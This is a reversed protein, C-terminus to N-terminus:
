YLPAEGFFNTYKSADDGFMEVKEGRIKYTCREGVIKSFIIDFENGSDDKMIIKVLNKKDKLALKQHCMPCYIELRDGEEYKFSPHTDISYDGLKPDLLILGFGKNEADAALILKNNVRLQGNCHPCLYDAYM